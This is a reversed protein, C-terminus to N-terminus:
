VGVPTKRGGVYDQIAREVTWQARFGFAKQEKAPDGLTENQYFSYPNKIYEPQLSTGLTSTLGAGM